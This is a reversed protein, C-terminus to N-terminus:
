KLLKVSVFYGCHDTAVSDCIVKRSLVEWNNNKNLMIYDIKRDPNNSPFTLEPNSKDYTTQWFNELINISNSNPVDNFDGALITPYKSSSFLENIKNVQEIRELSNPKYDLHTCIFSVTDGSELTTVIQLVTRPENGNHFPLAINKSGIISRKSLIAVGYEGDDFNMAKGFLSVMNIKAGIIQSLDVKKVRNTRFDVEQLAVLDPNVSKIIEAIKDYNNSGDTNAGHFINYTLVNLTTQSFLTSSICFMLVLLILKKM